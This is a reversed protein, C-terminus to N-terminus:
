RPSHRPSGLRRRAEAPTLISVPCQGALCLLDDDGTVVADAAAVLALDLFMQDDADASVPAAAVPGEVEVTEAFPLFASLLEEVEAPTLAFKPYALVRLLEAVTARSVLPRLSGDEWAARLWALRGHEFLLASVVVNTDLVVRV